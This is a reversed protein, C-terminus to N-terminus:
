RRKNKLFLYQMFHSSTLEKLCYVVLTAVLGEMLIYFAPSLVWSLPQYTIFLINSTKLIAAICAIKFATQVKGTKIIGMSMIFIGFSILIPTLYHLHLLHAIWGFSCELIGWITGYLLIWFYSNLRNKTM